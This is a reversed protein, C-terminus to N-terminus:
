AAEQRRQLQRIGAIAVITAKYQGVCERYSAYDECKGECMHNELQTALSQHDKMLLDLETM